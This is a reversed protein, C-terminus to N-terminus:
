GTAPQGPGGPGAEGPRARPEVPTPVGCATEITEAGALCLDERYMPGIVQVGVPLGGFVGASVAVAPLGVFSTASCLRMARTVREQGGRSASEVGPEVAPDTFM